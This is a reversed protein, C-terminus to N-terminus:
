LSNRNKVLTVNENNKTKNIIETRTNSKMYNNINSDFVRIIIAFKM